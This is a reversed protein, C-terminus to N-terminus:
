REPAAVFQKVRTRLWGGFCDLPMRAGRSAWYATYKHRVVENLLCVWALGNGGQAVLLCVDDLDQQQKYCGGGYPQFEDYIRSLLMGHEAVLRRLWPGDRIGFGMDYCSKPFGALAALARATSEADRQALREADVRSATAIYMRALEKSTAAFRVADGESERYLIDMVIGCIDAPLEM